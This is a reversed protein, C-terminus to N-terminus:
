RACIFTVLVNQAYLRTRIMYSCLTESQWRTNLAQDRDQSTAATGKSTAKSSHMQNGTRKNEKGKTQM